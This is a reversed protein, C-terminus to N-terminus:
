ERNLENESGPADAPEDALDGGDGSPFAAPKKISKGETFGVKEEAYSNAAGYGDGYEGPSRSELEERIQLVDPHENDVLLVTYDYPFGRRKELWVAGADELKNIISKPDNLHDELSDSLKRLLPTLYVEDYQGFHEEIVRLTEYALSDTVEQYEVDRQVTFSTRAFRRGVNGARVTETSKAVNGLQRRAGESLLDGANLFTEHGLLHSRELDAHTELTVVLMNKGHGKLQQVLPLQVSNGSILVYSDIDPRSYILDNADVCLQMSPAAADISTPVFKPTFGLQYLSKQIFLGDGQLSGFDAYANSLALQFLDKGQLYRHLEELMDIIFEDPHTEDSLRKLLLSYLNQYDVLVATLNEQRWLRNKDYRSHNM